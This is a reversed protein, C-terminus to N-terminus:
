QAPAPRFQKIDVDGLRADEKLAARKTADSLLTTPRHNRKFTYMIWIPEETTAILQDGEFHCFRYVWFNHDENDITTAGVLARHLLEIAGSPRRFIAVPDMTDLSMIVPSNPTSLMFTANAWFAVRISGLWAPALARLPTNM